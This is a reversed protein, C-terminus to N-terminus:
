YRSALEMQIIIEELLVPKEKSSDLFLNLGRMCFLLTEPFINTFPVVFISEFLVLFSSLEDESAGRGIRATQIRNNTLSLPLLLIASFRFGFPFLGVKFIYSFSDWYSLTEAFYFRTKGFVRLFAKVSLSWSGKILVDPNKNYTDCFSAETIRTERQENGFFEAQWFQINRWYLFSPLPIGITKSVNCLLDLGHFAIAWLLWSPGILIIRIWQSISLIKHSKRWSLDWSLDKWYVKIPIKTM